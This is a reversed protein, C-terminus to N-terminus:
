SLTVPRAFYVASMRRCFMSWPRIRPLVTAWPRMLRISVDFAM